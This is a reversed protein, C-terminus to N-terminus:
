LTTADVTVCYGSYEQCIRSARPGWAMRTGPPYPGFGLDFEVAYTLTAHEDEFLAQAATRDDVCTGTFPDPTCATADMAGALPNGGGDPFMIVGVQDPGYDHVEMHLVVAALPDWTIVLQGGDVVGNCNNDVGDDQEWTSPNHASDTDDCDPGGVAEGDFDDGDQDSDGNWCIPDGCGTREHCGQDIGDYWIESAGPYTDPDDDDCDDGGSAPDAFGDRDGDFGDVGDCNQDVDDGVLDSTVPNVAGETDDCDEGGSALAAHGDGDADVGDAEDCNQDIGDGVSDTAGPLVASDADDCDTGGSVESAVDDGDADTGDVEDCNQDVGDGALDTASPNISPKTDDCDGDAASFGDGDGDGGPAGAPGGGNCAGLLLGLFAHPFYTTTAM